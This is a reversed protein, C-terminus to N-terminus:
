VAEKPTPYVHDPDDNLVDFLKGEGIIERNKGM